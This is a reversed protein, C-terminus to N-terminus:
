YKSVVKYNRHTKVENSTWNGFKAQPGLRVNVASKLRETLLMRLSVRFGDDGGRPWHARGQKEDNEQHRETVAQFPRCYSM